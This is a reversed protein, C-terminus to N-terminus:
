SLSLRGGIVYLYIYEPPSSGIEEFWELHGFTQILPIVNLHLDNCTQMIRDFEAKSYAYGARAAALEGASYIFSYIIVCIFFNRFIFNNINIKIVSGEFPFTDEWEVLVGTAGAASIMRLLEIFYDIKPAGGALERTSESM